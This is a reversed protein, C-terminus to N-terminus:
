TELCLCVLICHDFLYPHSCFLFLKFARLKSFINTDSERNGWPLHFIVNKRVHTLNNHERATVSGYATNGAGSASFRSFNKPKEKLWCTESAKRWALSPFTVASLQTIVDRAGNPESHLTTRIYINPLCSSTGKGLTRWAGKWNPLPICEHDLFLCALSLLGLLTWFTHMNKFYGFTKCQPKRLNSSSQLVQKLCHERKIMEKLGSDGYIASIGHCKIHSLMETKWQM